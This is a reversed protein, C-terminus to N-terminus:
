DTQKAYSEFAEAVKAQKTDGKHFLIRYRLTVSEGAPITLAGNEAKSQTFDSVGFPNAAFLGYTRVHWYTPFRTSSPHNMFAIGVTQGDVPGVYDVWASRKGWAEKDTLGEANVIHGGKKADVKMSAATRVGMAGEKTDGFTVPGETAKLVIDYDIWRSDGDVGFTLRREDELVKKGDPGLWDNQAVVKAQPGSEVAVFKRHKTTGPKAIKPNNPDAGWFDIGNVDGHTFWVSRQHPHDQREDANDSHMPYARTLPKGTPGIVPWLIPKSGSCTLYYTFLEGDIKVAVGQDTKEATIEAAHSSSLAASFLWGLLMPVILRHTM